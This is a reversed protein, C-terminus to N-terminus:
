ETMPPSASAQQSPYDQDVMYTTELIKYKSLAEPNTALESRSHINCWKRIYDAADLENRSKARNTVSLWEQFKPNKALMGARMRAKEGESNSKPEDHPLPEADSVLRAIAVWREKGPTPVGGLVKLSADANELPGEFKYVMVNRTRVMQIETFSLKTVADTM